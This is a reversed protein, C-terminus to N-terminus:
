RYKLKYKLNKLSYFIKPQWVRLFVRLASFLNIKFNEQMYKQMALSDCFIKYQEPSYYKKLIGGIIDLDSQPPEYEWPILLSEFLNGAYKMTVDSVKFAGINAPLGEHDSVPSIKTDSTVHGFLYRCARSRHDPVFAYYIIDHLVTLSDRKM